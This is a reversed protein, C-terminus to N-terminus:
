DTHLWNYIAVGVIFYLNRQLSDQEQVKADFLFKWPELDAQLLDMGHALQSRVQYLTKKEKPFQDIYPFYKKLFDQFHKTVRYRPQGCSPCIDEDNELLPQNCNRCVEKEQALCELATVLAIFASSHSEEWTHRYQAYWSCAMFFKRWTPKDLAFAKDLSQELNDPLTLPNLSRAPTSSYYTQSPVREMPSLGEVPSFDDMTGKLGSYVYGLQAWETSMNSSDTKNKTHILESVRSILSGCFKPRIRNSPHETKLTWGFQAYRSGSSIVQDSLLNLLRTYIVAKERRRPNDIMPTPCLEYSVELAHNLVM